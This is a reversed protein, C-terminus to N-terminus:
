LHTLSRGYCASCSLNHLQRNLKNLNIMLCTKELAQTHPRIYPNILWCSHRFTFCAMEFCIHWVQSLFAAFDTSSNPPEYSFVFFCCCQMMAITSLKINKSVESNGRNLFINSRMHFTRWLLWFSWKWVNGSKSLRM